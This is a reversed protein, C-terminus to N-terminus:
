ENIMSLQKFIYSFPVKYIFLYNNATFNFSLDANFVSRLVKSKGRLKKGFLYMKLM